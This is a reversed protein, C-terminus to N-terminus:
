INGLLKDLKVKASLLSYIAEYYSTQSTLFQAQANSLDMSSAMGNKYKVSTRNYIREALALNEKENKHQELATAYDSRAQMFGIQLNQELQWQSNQDKEFDIRAQAVTALRMGSSLIPVQLNVGIMNPVAFNFDAKEMQHQYNYFASLVPLFEAKKNQMNLRSLRVQTNMLKYDINDNVNFSEKNTAEPDIKEFYTALDGSLKIDVNSELGLMLKLQNYFIEEQQKLTAVSLSLNNVLISLQDYDTDEVFGADVMAKIEDKVSIQTELNQQLNEVRENTILCLYFLNSVAEKIEQESKELGREALEKYTRSAKLGVIYSGNFILQSVTIDTTINEKVGLPMLPAQRINNEDQVYAPTIPDNPGLGSYDVYSGFSVMPVDFTNQYAVKASAQPLGIATTEWVKKESSEVDLNANAIAYNHEMAYQLAKELSFEMVTGQSFVGLSLVLMFATLVIKNM